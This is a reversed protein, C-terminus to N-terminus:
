KYLSKLQEKNLRKPPGFKDPNKIFFLKNDAFRIKQSYIFNTIIEGNLEVLKLTKLEQSKIDFKLDIKMQTNRNIVSFIEYKKDFTNQTIKFNKAFQEYQDFFFINFYEDSSLRIVSDFEYDYVSVLYENGVILLSSPYYYNIRFQKNSAMLVVTGESQQYSYSDNQVFDMVSNQSYEIYKLMKYFIAKEDLATNDNIFFFCFFIKFLSKISFM